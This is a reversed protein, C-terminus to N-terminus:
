PQRPNRRSEYERQARDVENQVGSVMLGVVVLLAPSLVLMTITLTESRQGHAGRWLMWQMLVFTLVLQVNVVDMLRQMRAIVSGRYEPPLRLLQEKGPFNFLEPRRPLRARLGETLAVTAVALMVPMGWAFPSRPVFNGAEGNPGIHQPIMTPLQPYMIVAAAVLALLGGWVLVRVITM